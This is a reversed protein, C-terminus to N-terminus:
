RKRKRKRSGSKTATPTYTSEPVYRGAQEADWRQQDLAKELRMENASMNAEELGRQNQLREQLVRNLSDTYQQKETDLNRTYDFDAGALKNSLAGSYLQGRAAMGLSASKRQQQYSRQLLNARTLPNNAFEPDFGYRSKINAEDQGLRAETDAFNRQALGQRSEAMSDWPLQQPAPAAPPTYGPSGVGQWGTFGPAPTNPVFTQTAKPTAM